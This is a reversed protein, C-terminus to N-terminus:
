KYFANQRKLNYEEVKLVVWCKKEKSKGVLFLAYSYAEMSLSCYSSTCYVPFTIKLAALHLLFTQLGLLRKNSCFLRAQSSFTLVSALWQM